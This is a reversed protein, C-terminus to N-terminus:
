EDPQTSSALRSLLVGAVGLLLVLDIVLQTSVIGRALQSRATIDGYGVTTFTSLDFYLADVHTMPQGFDKTTGIAYYACAFLFNILSVSGILSYIDILKMRAPKVAHVLQNALHIVCGAVCVWALWPLGQRGRPSVPFLTWVLLAVGPGMMFVIVHGFLTPRRVPISAPM